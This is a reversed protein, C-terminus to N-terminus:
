QQNYFKKDLGESWPDYIQGRDIVNRKPHVMYYPVTALTFPEHRVYRHSSDPLRNMSWGVYLLILPKNLGVLHARTTGGIRFSYATYHNRDCIKNVGAIEKAISTIYSPAIPKGNAHVFLFNSPALNLGNLKNTIAEKSKKTITKKQLNNFLKDIMAERKKLMRKILNFPNIYMCACGKKKTCSTSTFFIQKKMRRSQQNKFIHIIFRMMMAKHQEDFIYSFDEIKVGRLQDDGDISKALENPRSMTCWYTVALAAKVLNKYTISIKEGNKNHKWLTKVYKLIHKLKFPLRHDKGEQYKKKLALIYKKYGQDEKYAPLEGKIECIWNLAATWQGLSSIGNLDEVRTQIWYCIKIPNFDFPDEFFELNWNVWNRFQSLFHKKSDMRRSETIVGSIRKTM